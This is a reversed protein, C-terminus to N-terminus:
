GSAPVASNHGFCHEFELAQTPELRCLRGLLPGIRNMNCAMGSANYCEILLAWVRGVFQPSEWEDLHCRDIESALEELIAIATQTRRTQRCAEAVLLKRRFRDRGTERTEMVAALVRLADEPHGAGLLEDASEPSNSVASAAMALPPRPETAPVPTPAEVEFPGPQPAYSLFEPEGRSVLARRVVNRCRDLAEKLELPSPSCQGLNADALGSLERLAQQADRIQEALRRYFSTQTDSVAANFDDTSGAAEMAIWDALSYVRRDTGLPNGTLQVTRLIEALKRDLFELVAARVELDDDEPLPHLTEWYRELLLSVIRLGSAIGEIERQHALAEALWAAIQLDKSRTALAAACLRYVELWDALKREQAGWQSSDGDDSRRAEKIADWTDSFRLSEGAPSDGPIPALLEQWEATSTM